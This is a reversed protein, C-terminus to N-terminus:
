STPKHMYVIRVKLVIPGVACDLLSPINFLLIDFYLLVDQFLEKQIGVHLTRINMCFLLIKVKPRRGVFVDHIKRWIYNPSLTCLYTTINEVAMWGSLTLCCSSTRVSRYLATFVGNFSTQGHARLLLKACAHGCGILM